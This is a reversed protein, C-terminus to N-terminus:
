VVSKRDRGCRGVGGAVEQPLRQEARSAFHRLGKSVECLHLPPPSTERGFGHILRVQLDATCNAKQDRENYKQIARWDAQSQSVGKDYGSLTVISNSM